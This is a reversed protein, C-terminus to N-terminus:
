SLYPSLSKDDIFQHLPEWKDKVNENNKANKDNVGKERM